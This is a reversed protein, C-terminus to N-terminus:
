RWLPRDGARTARLGAAHRAPGGGRSGGPRGRPRAASRAPHQPRQRADASREGGPRPAQAARGAPRRASRRTPAMRARAARDAAVRPLRTRGQRPYRGACQSRRQSSFEGDIIARAYSALAQESKASAQPAAQAPGSRDQGQLPLTLLALAAVLEAVPVLRVLARAKWSRSEPDSGFDRFRCAADSQFGCGHTPRLAQRRSEPDSGSDRLQHAADSRLECVQTPRLARKRSEPDSGFERLQPLIRNPPACTLPGEQPDPAPERGAGHHPRVRPLPSLRRCPRAAHSLCSHEEAPSRQCGAGGCLRLQRDARRVEGGQAGARDGLRPPLVHVEVMRSSPPSLLMDHRRTRATALSSLREKRFIPEFRLQTGSQEVKALEPVKFRLEYEAAESLDSLESFRLDGLEIRGFLAGLEDELRERRKGAESDFRSRLGPGYFGTSRHRLTVEASGDAALQVEYRYLRQHEEGSPWEIRQTQGEHGRVVLVEAGYDMEPLVGLPHYEATGDLFRAPMGKQAPVYSICHNFHEVLPLSLDDRERREDAEILVPYAEIGVESLMANMLIAKDKCDGHLRAYIADVSYPKYGHVGFEWAKYRVQNTVFEYIRRLKEEPDDVGQVLQQVRARIPPTITTQKRILDWWWAAFQNWDRYTSIRVLPGTERPSPALSEIDYSAVHRMEWTRLRTGDQLIREKAEPVGGVRQFYYERGQELLVDLRQRKSGVGAEPVFVHELGFYDGFFGPWRDDVRAKIEVIDGPRIPPLNVYYSRGVRARREGGKPDIV